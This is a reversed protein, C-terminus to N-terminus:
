NEKKLQQLVRSAALDILGDKDTIIGEKEQLFVQDKAYPEYLFRRDYKPISSFIGNIMKESITNYNAVHISANVHNIDRLKGGHLHGHVNIMDRYVAVPYHSFIIKDSYFFPVEYVEDFFTRAATLVEQKDHNGKVFITHGKCEKMITMFSPDGWDGLFIFTDKEKIKSFWKEITQILFDDHEKINIFQNREFTIIGRVKGEEYVTEHNFHFDSSAYWM